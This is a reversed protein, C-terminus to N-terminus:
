NPKLLSDPSVTCRLPLPPLPHSMSNIFLNFVVTNTSCTRAEGADALCVNNKKKKLQNNQCIANNQILRIPHSYLCFYLIHISQIFLKTTYFYQTKSLWKLSVDRWGKQSQILTLTRRHKWAQSWLMQMSGMAPTGAALSTSPWPPPVPWPPPPPPASSPRALVSPYYHFTINLSEMVQKHKTKNNVTCYASSLKTFLFMNKSPKTLQRSFVLISTLIKLSQQCM